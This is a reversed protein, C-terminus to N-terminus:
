SKATLWSVQGHLYSFGSVMFQFLVSYLAIAGLSILNAGSFIKEGLNILTKKMIIFM